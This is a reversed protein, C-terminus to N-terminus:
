KALKWGNVLREYASASAEGLHKDLVAKLESWVPEPLADIPVAATDAQDPAPASLMATLSLEADDTLEDITKADSAVKGKALLRINTPKYHALDPIEKILQEKVSYISTTSAVEITQNFRPAKISKIALKVSRASSAENKQVKKKPAPVQKFLVPASVVNSRAPPIDSGLLTLFTKVFTTESM